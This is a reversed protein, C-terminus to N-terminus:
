CNSEQIMIFRLKLRGKGQTTWCDKCWDGKMFPTLAMTLAVVTLMLKMTEQMPVFFWLRCDIIRVFGCDGGGVIYHTDGSVIGIRVRWTEYEDVYRLQYAIGDRISLIRYGFRGVTRYPTYRMSLSVPTPTIMLRHGHHSSTSRQKCWDRGYLTYSGNDLGCGNAYTEYDRANACFFVTQLRYDACVRLWGRRCHLSYWRVCDWDSCTVNWVWWRITIPLCDWRSYFSYSVIGLDCIPWCNSVNCAVFPVSIQLIFTKYICLYAYQNRCISLM